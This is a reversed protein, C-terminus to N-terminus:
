PLIADHGHQVIQEGFAAGQEDVTGHAGLEKSTAEARSIRRFHPIDVVWVTDNRHM